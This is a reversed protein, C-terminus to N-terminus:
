KKYIITGIVGDARMSDDEKSGKKAAFANSFQDVMYPIADCNGNIIDDCLEIISDLIKKDAEKPAHSFLVRDYEDERSKVRLLSQKYEPISTSEPLQMWVNPNCADGFIMIRYEKILVMVSGQTHGSCKVIELHIGGLDFIDGDSLVDFERPHPMVIDNENMRNIIEPNSYTVFNKVIKVFEEQKSYKLAQNLLSSDESALYIDKDFYFSGSSHDSHAHTLIVIIPLNTLQEVYEKINGVGIGSDILAAKTEGLVLYMFENGAGIIRIVDQAIEEHHFFEQQNMFIDNGEKNEM